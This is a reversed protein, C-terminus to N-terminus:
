KIRESNKIAQIRAFFNVITWSSNVRWHVVNQCKEIFPISTTVCNKKNLNMKREFSRWTCFEPVEHRTYENICLFRVSRQNINMLEKQNKYKNEINKCLYVFNPLQGHCIYEDIRLIRVSISWSKNEDMIETKKKTRWSKYVEICLVKVVTWSSYVRWLVFSQCTVMILMIM